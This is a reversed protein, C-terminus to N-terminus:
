QPKTDKLKKIEDVIQVAFDLTARQTKDVSTAVSNNLTNIIEAVEETSGAAAAARMERSDVRTNGAASTALELGFTQLDGQNMGKVADPSMNLNKILFDRQADISMSDFQQFMELMRRTDVNEVGALDRGKLAKSLASGDSSAVAQSVDSNFAVLQAAFSRRRDEADYTLMKTSTESIDKGVGAAYKQAAQEASNDNDEILDLAQARLQAVDAESLQIGHKQQFYAIYDKATMSSLKRMESASQFIDNVARLRLHDGSKFANAFVDSEVQDYSDGPLMDLLMGSAGLAAGFGRLGLGGLLSERKVEGTGTEILDNLRKSISGRDEAMGRGVDADTRTVLREKSQKMLREATDRLESQPNQRTFRLLEAYLGGAGGRVGAKTLEDLTGGKLGVQTLLAEMGGAYEQRVGGRVERTFLKGGLSIEALREDSIEGTMLLKATETDLARRRLHRKQQSGFGGVDVSEMGSMLQDGEADAQLVRGLANDVGAANRFGRRSLVDRGDRQTLNMIRSSADTRDDYTGMGHGTFLARIAARPGGYGLQAGVNDLYNGTSAAADGATDQIPRFIPDAIFRRYMQNLRSGLTFHHEIEAPLRNRLTNSQIQRQVEDTLKGQQQMFRLLVRATEGRMGTMHQMTLQMADESDDGMSKFLLEFIRAVEGGQMQAGLNAGMGAEMRARFSVAGKQLKENAVKTIDEFSASSLSKLKSKDMAGTFRGKDDVEGLYASMLNGYSGSTMATRTAQIFQQSLDAAGREGIQGTANMLDQENLVGKELAVNVLALNQQAGQAGLKRSGGAGFNASAQSMQLGMNTEDSVGVGVGRMARNVAMRRRIESPDSFGMQIERQYMPAVEEMTKGIDRSIDRVTEVLKKFRTGADTANKSLKLLEMDNFKSFLGKLEQDNTLLEASSSLERFMRAFGSASDRSMGFGLPGGMNREGFVQGMAQQAFHQQEVGKAFQAATAQAVMSVPISAAMGLGGFGFANGFGRVASGLANQGMFGGAMSAYGGYELLHGPMNGVFEAARDGRSFPIGLRGLGYHEQSYPQAYSYAYPGM